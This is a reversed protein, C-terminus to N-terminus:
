ISVICEWLREKITLCFTKCLSVSLLVSKHMLCLLMNRLPHHHAHMQLVFMGSVCPLISRATSSLPRAQPRKLLACAAQSPRTSPRAHRAGPPLLLQSQLCFHAATQVEEGIMGDLVRRVISSGARRLLGRQCKTSCITPAPRPHNRAHRGVTGEAKVVRPWSEIAAACPVCPALNCPPRPARCPM